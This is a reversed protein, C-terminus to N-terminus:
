YKPDDFHILQSLYRKVKDVDIAGETKLKTEADISFNFRYHRRIEFYTDLEDPGFGGCLAIDNLGYALLLDIKKMLSDKSEKIGRGKSNDLMIFSRSKKVLERFQKNYVVDFTADSLPIDVVFLKCVKKLTSVDFSDLDNMQLRPITPWNKKIEMADKLIDSNQFSFHIVPIFDLHKKCMHAISNVREIEKPESLFSREVSTGVCIKLLPDRKEHNIFDIMEKVKESTDIQFQYFYHQSGQNLLSHFKKKTSAFPSIKM